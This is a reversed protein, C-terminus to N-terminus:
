QVVFETILVSLVQGGTLFHNVRDRLDDKLLAKGEFDVVDALRKSSVLTLVADQIQPLRQEAEDRTTPSDCEFAVKVKLLRTYGDGEINAVIPEIQLLREMYGAASDEGEPPPAEAGGEPPPAETAEPPAQGFLVFGGGLGAGVAVMAIILILLIPKGPKEASEDTAEEAM